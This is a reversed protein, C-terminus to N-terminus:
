HPLPDFGGPHFPHCKLIRKLGMWSGKIMGKQEIALAMYESCTPTFRCGNPFSASIYKHYFRICKVVFEIMFNHKRM